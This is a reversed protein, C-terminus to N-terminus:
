GFFLLQELIRRAIEHLALRPALRQQLEIVFGGEAAGVADPPRRRFDAPEAHQRRDLVAAGAARERVGGDDILPEARPRQRTREERGPREAREDHALRTAIVVARSPKRVDGGSAFDDREREGLRIVAPVGVVNLRACLRGVAAEREASGLQEDLVREGGSREDAGDADM